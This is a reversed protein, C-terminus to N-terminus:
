LAFLSEFQISSIGANFFLKSRREGRPLAGRQGIHKAAMQGCELDIKMAKGQWKAM